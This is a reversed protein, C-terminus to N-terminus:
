RSLMSESFQPSISLNTASLPVSKSEFPILFSYCVNEIQFFHWIPVVIDHDPSSFSVDLLSSSRNSDGLKFLRMGESSEANPELSVYSKM